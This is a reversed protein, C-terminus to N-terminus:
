HLPFLLAVNLMVLPKMSYNGGVVYLIGNIANSLKLGFWESVHPKKNGKNRM